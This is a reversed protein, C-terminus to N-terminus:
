ALMDEGPVTRASFLSDLWPLLADHVLEPRDDQPCHGVEPLVVFSTDKRNEPLGRFYKGVPGDFPTFPDKSGWLLLM